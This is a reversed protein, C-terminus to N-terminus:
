GSGQTPHVGQRDRYTGVIERSEAEWALRDVPGPALRTAPRLVARISGIASRGQLTFLM